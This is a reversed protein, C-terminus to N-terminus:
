VVDDASACARPEQEAGVSGDIGKELGLVKGQSGVDDPTTVGINENNPMRSFYRRISQMGQAPSNVNSKYKSKRRPTCMKGDTTKSGKTENVDDVTPCNRNGKAPSILM